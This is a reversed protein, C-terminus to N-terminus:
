CDGPVLGAEVGFFEAEVITERFGGSFSRIEVVRVFLELGQADFARPTPQPCASEPLEAVPDIGRVIVPGIEEAGVGPSVM